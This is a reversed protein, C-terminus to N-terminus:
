VLFDPFFMDPCFSCSITESVIKHIIVFLFLMSCVQKVKIDQRQDLLVNVKGVNTAYFSLEMFRVQTADYTFTLSIPQDVPIVTPGAEIGNLMISNCLNSPYVAFFKTERGDIFKLSDRCVTTDCRFFYSLCLYFM